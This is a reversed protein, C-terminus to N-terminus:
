HLVASDEAVAARAAVLPLSAHHEILRWHDGDKRYVNTALVRTAERQPPGGPTILEEVLHVALAGEAFRQLPRFRIVPPATGSMIERWSEMVPGKGQLLPGGPHICIVDDSDAWVGGMGRLDLRAFADYFAREAEFPESFDSTM